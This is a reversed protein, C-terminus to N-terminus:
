APTPAARGSAPKAVAVAPANPAAPATPAAPSAAPAATGPKPPLSALIESESQFRLDWQASPTGPAIEITRKGADFGLMEVQLTWAGDPIDTFSYAGNGDTTTILKKEGQTAVVTAGPIPLPGSKVVGQHQSALLGAVALGAAVLSGCYVCTRKRPM